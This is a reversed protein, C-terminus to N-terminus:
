GGFALLQPALRTASRFEIVIHGFVILTGDGIHMRQGAQLAVGGVSTGNTSGADEIEASDSGVSRLYAHLKSVASFPVVVDCVESRGVALVLGHPNLTGPALPILLRNLDPGREAPSESVARDVGTPAKETDADTRAALMGESLLFVPVALWRNREAEPLARLALAYEALTWPRDRAEISRAM